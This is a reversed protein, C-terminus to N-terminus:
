CSAAAGAAPTATLFNETVMGTTSLTPHVWQGNYTVALGNQVLGGIISPGVLIASIVVYQAPGANCFNGSAYGSLNLTGNTVPPVGTTFNYFDQSSTPVFTTISVYLGSCPLLGGLKPCLYNAAFQSGSQVNQANGTQIERAALHLASDLAEQQFMDFGIELVFLLLAFFPLAVIAFEIAVSGRRNLRRRIRRLDPSPDDKLQPSM